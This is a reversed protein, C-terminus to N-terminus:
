IKIRNYFYRLLIKVKDQFKLVDIQNILFLKNVPLHKVAQNFLDFVCKEYLKKFNIQQYFYMDYESCPEPYDLEFIWKYFDNNANLKDIIHKSNSSSSLHISSIRFNFLLKETNVVGNQSFLITSAIDSCFASPFQIFKKEKLIRSKFMFNGICIYINAKLWNYLYEYKSTLESQEPENSLSNGFEDICNVRSRILDCSPYKVALEVCKLLFDEEYTDDDAALVIYEGNAYNICKNWQKVLNEGGINKDNRLYVIREDKFEDTIVKLNEPSYDDVIILEFNSYSQNIISRIAESLFRSKYAPLVVSVLINNLM